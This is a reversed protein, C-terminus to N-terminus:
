VEKYYFYENNLNFKNKSIKKLSDCLYETIKERYYKQFSEGMLSILEHWHEKHWASYGSQSKIFDILADTFNNELSFEKRKEKVEIALSILSINDRLSDIWVKKNIKRLEIAVKNVVGQNETQKIILSLEYAYEVINIKDTTVIENEMDAYKTFKEILKLIKEDKNNTDKFLNSFNRVKVLADKVRFLEVADEDDFSISIIDSVLKNREDTSLEWLFSWLNYKKMEDLVLKAIDPNYNAWFKKIENFGAISNGVNTIVRSQLEEKFVYGCLLAVYILNQQTRKHWFLNYYQGSNAISSSIQNIENVNSFKFTIINIIRFIEDSQNSYNGNNWNIYQQCKTLVNDWGDKIGAYISYHVAETLGDQLTQGPIIAKSIEKVINEPPAVWKYAENELADSTKVLSILNSLSLEKITEKHIPVKIELLTNIVKSLSTIIKEWEIDKDKKNISNKFCNILHQYVNKVFAKERHCIKILCIYKGIEQESWKIKKTAVSVDITSVKKVFENCKESNDKWVSNYIAKASTLAFQIDMGYHEFHYNFIFWFGEGHNECLVKLGEGDGNKLVSNIKPELLLQFGKEPTVGFILGSLDKICTKPLLDKHKQDILESKVLKLKIDHTSMNAMEKLCVYYAINSIPIIHGWQSALFGVHNIYNKIKRPTPIDTLDKRTIRLVRILENKDNQTWGELAYDMMRRAFAEWGSFIPKPVEIILQFCKDFFPKSLDQKTNDTSENWLRSLGEADYPVIIWIRDFWKKKNWAQTRQSLFTQLTSWIKLADHVAIRDLNDVVLILKKIKPNEFVIEMIRDFYREFEISSREDEESVEQTIDKDTEDQLFSWNRSDFIGKEKLKKNRYIRILNGVVVLLPASSLLLGVIFVWHPNGIFSSDLYDVSSLFAIGIPVLFLAISLWKGLTTTTRTTKIKTTKRQHAIKEKLDDLKKSANQDMYLKIEDILSELFIRRLPDGEHAWADFQFLLNSNSIEQIKRKLISIVTSKGSGWSGELGISIGREENTILKLISEAIKEHTKDELLDNDVSEERLLKFAYRNKNISNKM